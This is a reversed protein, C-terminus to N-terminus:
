NQVYHYLTLFYEATIKKIKTTGLLIKQRSLVDRRQFVFQFFGKKLLIHVTQSNTGNVGALRMKQGATVLVTFPPSIVGFADFAAVFSSVTSTFIRFM